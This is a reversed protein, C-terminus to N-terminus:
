SSEKVKWANGFGENLMERLEPSLNRAAAGGPQAKEVQSTAPEGAQEQQASDQQNEFSEPQEALSQPEQFQKDLEFPQELEKPLEVQPQAFNHTSAQPAPKQQTSASPAPTTSVGSRQMRLKFAVPHGFIEAFCTEAFVKNEQKNLMDYVFKTGEALQICLVDGECVLQQTNMFLVGRAPMKSSALEKFAQWKQDLDEQTFGLVSQAGEPQYVASELGSGTAINMAQAPKAALKQASFENQSAQPVHPSPAVASHDQVIPEVSAAVRAVPQSIEGTSPVSVATLAQAEAAVPQAVLGQELASLKEELLEIRRLLALHSEQTQPQMMRMCAAEFCLRADQAYRLRSSLESLEALLYNLSQAGSFLQAIEEIESLEYGELLMLKENHSHSSGDSSSFYQAGLIIYLYCARLLSALEVSLKNFDVAEQFCSSVLQFCAPMDQAALSRALNLVREHDFEGLLALSDEYRICGNGFVALQELSSLADRMGGAANQALLRLAEEEVEFGEQECVYALRCLLDDMSFHTFDFRQCRSLITDPVKQPDTTCLVFVVHAPPEELTKLLANFAATSLMHVEDIIYIKFKGQTPAFQVKTIIEDRISDVGTRSAADLEYVDPHVGAAVAKSNESEPDPNPDPNEGSLLAKALLRAMTTKGTGRPGCFLYAHSMRGQVIANSITSVIHAQGVVDNFSQPRYKRYLSSGM